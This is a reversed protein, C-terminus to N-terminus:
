WSEDREQNLLILPDVSILTTLPEYKYITAAERVFLSENQIPILAAIPHKHDVVTLILGKQVRKLEASLHTKLSSVSITEM